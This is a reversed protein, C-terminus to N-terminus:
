FVTLTIFQNSLLVHLSKCNIKDYIHKQSDIARQEASLYRPGDKDGPPCSSCLHVKQMRPFHNRKFKRTFRRWLLLPVQCNIVFKTTDPCIELSFFGWKRNVDTASQKFSLSGKTLSNWVEEGRLLISSLTFSQIDHGPSSM